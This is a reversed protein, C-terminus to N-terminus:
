RGECVITEIANMVEGIVRHHGEVDELEEHDSFHLDCHVVDDFGAYYLSARLLSLTWAARHGHSFLMAHMAGRRDASPAWKSAFEFYARDAHEFIREISPVAVRLVGGAKLARRCEKFFALAAYYDVHEVCHEILIFSVAGDAFPLPKTIDLDADYNLWGSLINTGCGLNVKV